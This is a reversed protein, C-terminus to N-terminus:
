LALNGAPYVFSNRIAASQKQYINIPGIIKKQEGTKLNKEFETDNGNSMLKARVIYLDIVFIPCQSVVIIFRKTFITAKLQFYYIAFSFLLEM